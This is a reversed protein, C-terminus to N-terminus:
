AIFLTLAKGDVAFTYTSNYMMVPTLTKNPNTNIYRIREYGIGAFAFIKRVVVFAKWLMMMLLNIMFISKLILNGEGPDTNLQKNMFTELTM